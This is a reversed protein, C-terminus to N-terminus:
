NSDFPSIIGSKVEEPMQSPLKKLSALYGKTPYEFRDRHLLMNRDTEKNFFVRLRGFYTEIICDWEDFERTDPIRVVLFLDEIKAHFRIIRLALYDEVETFNFRERYKKPIRSM